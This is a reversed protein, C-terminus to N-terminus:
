IDERRQYYCDICSLMPVEVRELEARYPDVRVKVDKTSGCQCVLLGAENTRAQALLKERGLRYTVQTQHVSDEHVDAIGEREMGLQAISKVQSIPARYREATVLLARQKTEAASERTHTSRISRLTRRYNSYIAQEEAADLERWNARPTHDMRPGFSSAQQAEYAIQAEAKSGYHASADGFPCARRAQCLGPEGKENLHYKAGM